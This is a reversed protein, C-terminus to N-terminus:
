KKGELTCVTIKIMKTFNYRSSVVSLTCTIKGKKLARLFTFLFYNDGIYSKEQIFYKCFVTVRYSQASHATRLRELVPFPGQYNDSLPPGSGGQRVYVWDTTDLPSAPSAAVEATQM